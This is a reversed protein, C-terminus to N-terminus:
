SIENTKFHVAGSEYTMCRTLTTVNTQGVMRCVFLDNGFGVTELVIFVANQTAAMTADAEAKAGEVFDENV